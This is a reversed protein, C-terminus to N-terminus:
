EPVLNPLKHINSRIYSKYASSRWRGANKIEEPPFGLQAMTSAAGIRFSHSKFHSAQMGLLKITKQLVASFQYRSLPTGDFHIFLPGTRSPRVSLYEQMLEVPCVIGQVKGIEIICGKGLQDTKSFRIKLQLSKRDSMIEIDSHRLVASHDSNSSVALEGVRLFGFFALSYAASFLRTEFKNSCVGPLKAIVRVLITPTIPLRSDKGRADSRRYGEVLKCVLFHKTIDEVQKIKCFFSVASINLCM